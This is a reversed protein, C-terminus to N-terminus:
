PNFYTPGLIAVAVIQSANANRTPLKVFIGAKCVKQKCAAIAM